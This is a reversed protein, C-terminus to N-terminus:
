QFTVMVVVIVRSFVDLLCSPKPDLTYNKVSSSGLVQSLEKTVKNHSNHCEM